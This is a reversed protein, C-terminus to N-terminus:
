YELKLIKLYKKKSKEHMKKIFFLTQRGISRKFISSTNTFDNDFGIIILLYMNQRVRLHRNIIQISQSKEHM